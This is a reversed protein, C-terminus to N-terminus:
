NQTKKRQFRTIMEIWLLKHLLFSLILTKLHEYQALFQELLKINILQARVLISHPM